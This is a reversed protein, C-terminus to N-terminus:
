RCPVHADAFSTSINGLIFVRQWTDRIICAMDNKVPVRMGNKQPFTFMGFARSDLPQTVHSLHSPLQFLHADNVRAYRLVGITVHLANGDLVLVLIATM